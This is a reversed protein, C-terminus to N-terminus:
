LKRSWHIVYRSISPISGKKLDEKLRNLGKAFATESILHLSSFAKHEYAAFDSLLYAFEVVEEFLQTFKQEALLQRIEGDKPYRGLEVEVTEPFYHSLPMRERIIKESDTATAFWGGSKLIRFAEKFFAPKNGVHHIVDTSFIFDFRNDPFPLSEASAQQWSIELNKERAKELM